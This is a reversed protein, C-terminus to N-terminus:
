RKKSFNDIYVSIEPTEIVDMSLPESGVSQYIAEYLMKKLIYLEKQKIDRIIYQLKDIKFEGIINIKCM